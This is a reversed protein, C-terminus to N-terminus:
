GQAARQVGGPPQRNVIVYRTTTSVSAQRRQGRMIRSELEKPLATESMNACLTRISLRNKSKMVWLEYCARTPSNDTHTLYHPSAISPTSRVVLRV